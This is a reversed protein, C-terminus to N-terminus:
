YNKRRAVPIRADRVWEYTTGSRRIRKSIYYGTLRWISRQVAGPVIHWLIADREPSCWVTLVLGVVLGIMAGEIM